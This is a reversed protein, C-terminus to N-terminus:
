YGSSRISVQIPESRVAPAAYASARVVQPAEYSATRVQPAEYSSTRIVAPAAYANSRVLAPQEYSLSSSALPARAQAERVLAFHEAEAQLVEPTKEVPLPAVPLHAGSARFGNENAVYNLSISQGEPSTYSFSGTKELTTDSQVLRGQEDEYTSPRHVAQTNDTLSIGNGTSYSMDNEQSGRINQSFSTIPIQKVLLSSSSDYGGGYSAPAERILM